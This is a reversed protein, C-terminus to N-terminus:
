SGGEEEAREVVCRALVRTRVPKKNGKWYVVADYVDERVELHEVDDWAEDRAVRGAVDRCLQLSAERGGRIALKVSQHAQMVEETGLLEPAAPRHRGRSSFAVVHFIRARPKKAHSFMPYSSLPFGDTGRILPWLVAALVAAGVVLAYPRSGTM